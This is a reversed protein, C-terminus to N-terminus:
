SDTIKTILVSCPAYHVLKRSVSGLLWAKVPSLGRSGAMVLDVNNDKVYLIIETAADGRVLVSRAHLGASDLLELARSLLELGKCEEEAQWKAYEKEDAAMWSYVQPEMAWTTPFVEPSPVPPLVHMVRLDVGKPLPLRPRDSGGAIYELAKQSFLSGDTVVLVRKLGEYPARVVLVPCCSYEVIQQAVGGLLIGLTARLGKAGVVILDAGGQEAYELLKEAPYGLVLETQVPIGKSELFARSQDLAARKAEHESIQLPTIVSLATVESRPVNTEDKLLDSLMTVAAMAHQSGDEAFLIKLPRGTNPTIM